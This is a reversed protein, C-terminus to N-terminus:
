DGSRPHPMGAIRKKLVEVAKPHELVLLDAGAALLAAGTAIEWYASRAELSGWDPFEREPARTEKVRACEPGPNVIMPFALMLDGALGDIRIREM